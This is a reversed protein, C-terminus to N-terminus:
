HVPSLSCTDNGEVETFGLPGEWGERRREERKEERRKEERRKEERRERRKKERKEERKEERRKEERRSFSKHSQLAADLQPTGLMLLVPIQQPSDLPLAGLHNSPHLM